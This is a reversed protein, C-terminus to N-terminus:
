FLNIFFCVFLVEFDITKWMFSEKSECAVGGKFIKRTSRVSRRVIHSIRLIKLGRSVPFFKEFLTEGHIKSLRSHYVKWSEHAVSKLDKPVRNFCIQLALSLSRECSAPM